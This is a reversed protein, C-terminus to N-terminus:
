APEFGAPPKLKMTCRAAALNLFEQLYACEVTAIRLRRRIILLHYLVLIPGSVVRCLGFFLAPKHGEQGVEAVGNRM